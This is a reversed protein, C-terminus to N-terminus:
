TSSKKFIPKYHPRFVKLGSKLRDPPPGFVKFLPHQFVKLGSRLNSKLSSQLQGPPKAVALLPDKLRDELSSVMAKQLSLEAKAQM